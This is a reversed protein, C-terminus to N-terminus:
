GAAAGRLEPPEGKKRNQVPPAPHPCLQEALRRGLQAVKLSHTLRTHFPGIETSAVVQSKGALRRFASSYLLRDRDKAFPTRVDDDRAGSTATSRRVYAEPPYLM